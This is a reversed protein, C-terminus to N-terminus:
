VAYNAHHAVGMQDTEFYRVRITLDVGEALGNQRTIQPVKTSIGDETMTTRTSGDLRRVINFDAYNFIGDCTIQTPSMCYSGRLYLLRGYEKM